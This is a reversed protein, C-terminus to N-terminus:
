HKLYNISQKTVMFQMIGQLLKSKEWASLTIKNETGILVAQGGQLQVKQVKNNKAPKDTKTIRAVNELTHM